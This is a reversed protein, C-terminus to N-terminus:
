IAVYIGFSSLRPGGTGCALFGGYDFGSLGVELSYDMYM